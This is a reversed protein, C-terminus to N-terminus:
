SHTDMHAVCRIDGHAVSQRAHPTCTMIHPVASIFTPSQHTRIPMDSHAVADYHMHMHAVSHAVCTHCWVMTHWRANDCDTTGVTHPCLTHIDIHAVCEHSCMMRHSLANHRHTGVSDVDVHACMIIQTFLHGCIYCACTCYLSVNSIHAHAYARTLMCACACVCM